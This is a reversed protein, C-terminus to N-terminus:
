VAMQNLICRLTNFTALCYKESCARANPYVRAQRGESAIFTKPGLIRIESFGLHAKCIRSVRAKKPLIRVLKPEEVAMPVIDVFRCVRVTAKLVHQLNSLFVHTSIVKYEGAINVIVEFLSAKFLVPNDLAM